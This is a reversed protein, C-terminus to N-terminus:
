FEPGITFLWTPRTIYNFDTRWAVDVKMIMFLAMTRVGVGFGMRPSNLRYTSGQVTWLRLPDQHNWVAGIDTFAAGRLHFFGVPLPGVLGLEQLFPFRLEFSTLAMRTGLIDNSPYGRLTSYGGVRFTQPTPGFSVGALGRWAFTYGHTLDSYHRVDATVTQYVLSKPFLPLAPSFTLAYRGGNVPGFYGFLTNDGILSLTPSTISRYEQVTPYFTGFPDEAFFQRDIFTQTFNLEGRRFRDFPYSMGFLAGFNRDSFLQPSGLAEGFSTVRSSFYNKFHFAGYSYDIRGPLYSYIALINTEAISSSALDASIYVNRDGLFDSFQLQTSGVFGYGTAAYFGGGFYDASMKVKYPVPKQALVSDPLAFPGGREVLTTTAPVHSSDGPSAHMPPHGPPDLDPRPASALSAGSTADWSPPEEAHSRELPKGNAHSKSGSSDAPLSLALPATAVHQSTDPPATLSDGWALDLAGLNPPAILSDTPAQLAAAVSLVAAPKEKRLRVLAERLSLPQNVAFVDFGGHNFASYVLRDNQRSWSLSLIGGLVDSLQTVTSDVSDWLYANPTGNRDSVFALRKGDPSWAPSHDDGFTAVVPTVEHTVIDVNYIAYDGYGGPKHRAGLVVPKGRDSSFTVSKGDPTWTSEKEEWLDNTLRTLAGTHLDVLYLDSRGDKVGTVVITDAVPSWSPFEASDMHLEIRKTVNGNDADVVYLVDYGDSQAVIGISRGDPSWTLSGRYSPLGEFTHSREGRILRREVRGDFMSMVYVDTYQHRDSFFVIRDGQPSTAPGTNVNSEDERHDTMRRGYHDPDLKTAVTPWYKRKLYERWQEDFKHVPTGVSRQFAADFNHMQRSRELIDRLREEGFRDVLYNIASQGQKYVIYGGSYELPPLYGELDGDRLFMQENSEEGLSMYEAMGEAFWLPIQYFGQRAILAAASGGYLMDFMVAHTLEHVVVHRLDEYSGTFPIVVRNHLVETFGGTGADILEPTVNTQAFDNHSGYLIIPVRRELTHGMRKSLMAHAKEALDLVRLSLSDEGPYFYVDFHDSSISRWDYRRYQVKNQGFYQASAPRVDAFVGLALLGATLTWPWWSRLNRM